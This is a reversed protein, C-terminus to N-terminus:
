EGIISSFKNKFEELEQAVNAIVQKYEALKEIYKEDKEGTHNLINIALQFMAQSDFNYSYLVKTAELGNLNSM